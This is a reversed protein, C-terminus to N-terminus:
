LSVSYIRQTYSRNIEGLSFSATL